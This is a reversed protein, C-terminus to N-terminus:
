DSSRFDQHAGEHVASHRCEEAIGAPGDHGDEIRKIVVAVLQIMDQHAVLLAGGMGGFAVGPHASFHTHAEHRAARARCVRNGADGVGHEVTRGNHDDGTLDASRQEAGVSKLLTVDDVDRLRDALPGVLYATGGVHSPRHVPSEINGARPARTGHHEVKRFVRLGFQSLIAGDFDVKDATVHRNGSRRAVGDLFCSGEDIRGLTRQHEDALADFQAVRLLFDASKDLFGVRRGAARQETKGGQGAIVPKIYTHESHVATQGGIRHRLLAVQQYSDSHAEVVADGAVEGRVRPLGFFDVEVYIRGLHVFVHGYVHGHKAVAFIRQGCHGGQQLLLVVFSPNVCKRGIPGM